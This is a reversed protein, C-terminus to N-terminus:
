SRWGRCGTRSSRRSGSWRRRPPWWQPGLKRWIGHQETATHRVIEVQQGPSPSDDPSAGERAGGAFVEVRSHRRPGISCHLTRGEQSGGFVSGHSDFTIATPSVVDTAISAAFEWVRQSSPAQEHGSCLFHAPSPRAVSLALGSEAFGRSHEMRPSCWETALSPFKAGSITRSCCFGRARCCSSGVHSCNGSSGQIFVPFCTHFMSRVLDAEFATKALVTLALVHSGDMTM